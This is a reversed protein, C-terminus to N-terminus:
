GKRKKPAHNKKPEPVDYRVFEVKYVKIPGLGIAEKEDDYHQAGRLKYLGDPGSVFRHPNDDLAAYMLLGTEGEKIKHGDDEYGAPYHFKMDGAFIVSQKKDVSWSTAGGKKPNFTFMKEVTGMAPLEATKKYGLIKAVWKSPVSLGRYLINYNPEHIIDTYQGRKLFGHLLEASEVDLHDGRFHNVVADLLQMELKTSKEFPMMGKQHRGRDQPWAWKGMKTKPSEGPMKDRLSLQKRVLKAVSTFFTTLRNYVDFLTLQLERSWSYGSSSQKEAKVAAKNLEDTLKKKTIVSTNNFEKTRPIIASLTDSVTNMASSYSPTKILAMTFEDFQRKYGVVSSLMYTAIADDEECATYFKDIANLMSKHAQQEKLSSTKAKKSAAAPLAEPKKKISSGISKKLPPM